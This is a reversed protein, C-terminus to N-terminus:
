HKKKAARKRRNAEARDRKLQERTTFGYETGYGTIYVRVGDSIAPNFAGRGITWL